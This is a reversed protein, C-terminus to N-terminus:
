KQAYYRLLFCASETTDFVLFVYIFLDEWGAVKWSESETTGMDNGAEFESTEEELCFGRECSNVHIKWTAESSGLNEVIGM